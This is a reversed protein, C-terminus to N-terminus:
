FKKFFQYFIVVSKPITLSKSSDAPPSRINEDAVWQGERDEADELDKLLSILDDDASAITENEDFLFTPSLDSDSKLM